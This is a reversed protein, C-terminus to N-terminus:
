VCWGANIVQRNEPHLYSNSTKSLIQDLSSIAKQFIYRGIKPDIQVTEGDQTKELLWSGLIKPNSDVLGNRHVITARFEQRMRAGQDNQWRLMTTVIAQGELDKLSACIGGFEHAKASQILFNFFPDNFDMMRIQTNRLALNRDVTIRLRQRRGPIHRRVEEPMRIDLVHGNYTSGVVEIGLVDLMGEIFARVHRKDIAVQGQMGMPDFSSAFEFLEQQKLAAEKARKLAEEIRDQTRKIGVTSAEELIDEVDLMEAIRGLIEDELGQQFERSVSAMDRVVQDIRDYILNCIKSDFTHPALLNFVVVKKKQGYRYLRGIRQVLRMPNWPLDYNVMIHCQRHLNLGEGGAETSILFQGTQEFDLIAQERQHYTQGGYILYVSGVGFQNELAEKLYDQTARYETFILVKERKNRGLVSRILDDMFSKLKLDKVRVQEAKKLLAEILRIEGEFFEHEPTEFEEDSEGSFREDFEEETEIEITDGESETVIGMLKERRRELAAQIAAISSAALKRYITMVFGIALGEQGLKKSAAYGEHLYYQLAQDFIEVEPDTPVAMAHTLTGQFIFNGEADTVDAKHNRIVIDRLIEPNLELKNIQEKLEPRLLELLAQFKDQMGQHPTGTLLLFADTTQRLTAALRFRESADYKAGWQRRSLRHAEDFVILDWKGAEMLSDLHGELKLRDISGIVHDYMKWRRPHNIEFDVGYIQFDEMGFRHYLEEQWQRVLGAPTVILIRRFTSRQQLASLLMGVEITKGLGVDDGILWNLNGSRLIHHVLHIQHPLPDIDMQSLSGTNEHWMELAHALCRLRFREAASGEETTECLEFRQRPGKIRRLNEFPLWLRNGSEPFEVLVQDREGIRRNDLVVGEGLPKRTRSLPVDQVDMYKQFGSRLQHPELWQKEQANLWRVLVETGLGNQRRGVVIGYRNEKIAKVWCKEVPILRDKTM